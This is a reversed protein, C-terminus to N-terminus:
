PREEAILDYSEVQVRYQAGRQPVPVLFYARGGAPINGYVWGASTALTRGDADLAAVRLRVNGVRYVGDNYIYGIVAPGRRSAEVEWEIRFFREPQAGAAGASVLAVAVAALWRRM